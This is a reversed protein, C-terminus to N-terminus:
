LHQVLEAYSAVIRGAVGASHEHIESTHFTGMHVGRYTIQVLKESEPFTGIADILCEAISADGTERNIEEQGFQLSWEYLGVDHRHIVIHPANM